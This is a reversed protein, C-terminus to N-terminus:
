YSPPLETDAVERFRNYDARLMCIDLDDDWPVFGGHRVAGLITGWDAFYTIGHKQCIRDIESLVDLSAAWAIKVQTPVYFGYRIADRFFDISHKM